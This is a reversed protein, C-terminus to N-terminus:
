AAPPRGTVHRLAEPPPRAPLAPANGHEDAATAPAADGLAEANADAAAAVV